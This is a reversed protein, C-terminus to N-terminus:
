KCDFFLQYWRIYNIIRWVKRSNVKNNGNLFDLILKTCYEVRLIPPICSSKLMEQIQLRAAILLDTEPSEFGIKDRRMLVREPVIGSMATRLIYKTEGQNSILYEEPLSLLFNVINQNLFPVRSEVSWRMSNRDGHRLLESLGYGGTLANRLAHM